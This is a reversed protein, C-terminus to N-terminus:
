LNGVKNANLKLVPRIKKAIHKGFKGMRTVGALPIVVCFIGDVAFRKLDHSARTAPLASSLALFAVASAVGAFAKYPPRKKHKESSLETQLTLTHPTHHQHLNRLDTFDGFAHYELDDQFPVIITRFVNAIKQCYKQRPSKTEKM